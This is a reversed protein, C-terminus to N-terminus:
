FISNERQHLLVSFAMACHSAVNSAYNGLHHHGQLMQEVDTEYRKLM